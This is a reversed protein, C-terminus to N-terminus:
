GSVAWGVAMALCVLLGLVIWWPRRAPTDEASLYQGCAPCQESGQYTREGCYPCDAREDDDRDSEPYEGPRLRDHDDDRYPM